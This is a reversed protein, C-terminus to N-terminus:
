LHTIPAAQGPMSTKVEQGQAVARLGLNERHALMRVMSQCYLGKLHHMQMCVGAASGTHVEFGVVVMTGATIDRGSAQGPTSMSGRHGAAKGTEAQEHQLRHIAAIGWCHVAVILPAMQLHSAHCCDVAIGVQVVIGEAVRDGTIPSTIDCDAAAILAHAQM